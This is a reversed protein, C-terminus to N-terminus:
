PVTVTTQTSAGAGLQDIVAADVTWTGAHPLIHVAGFTKSSFGDGFGINEELIFGNPSFSNATCALVALPSVKPFPVVTLVATPPIDQPEANVAFQTSQEAGRADWAVVTIRPNGKFVKLPTNIFDRDTLYALQDNIYVAMASIPASSNASIVFPNPYNQVAGNSPTTVTIGQASPKATILRESSNFAGLNDWATTRIRYEGINQYTHTANPGTVVTGDGFDIQTGTVVGDPDTSGSLNVSVTMGGSTDVNTVLTPSQDSTRYGMAPSIHNIISPKGVAQVYLVYNGPNLGFTGMNIAHQTVPLDALDMLNQGDTSIYVTYHDVANENGTVNWTLWGGVMAPSVSVCDDVGSEIETGEEYDNWTVIQVAPLQNGASYFQDIQGFTDLWTQGCHQSIVRNTSWIASVDNFGKYTSGFSPQQAKGVAAAYFQQQASLQEDFPNLSAIQIWQYAGNSQPTETFGGPGQFLFIPNGPVSARVQDWDIYWTETGFMFVVPRGDIKSYAPSNMYQNYGQTLDRIAQTTVDCNNQRAANFLAGGDYMLAFEFGSHAEAQARMQQTASNIFPDSMGYWDVIAGQIGRSIMDEVQRKVQAPDASNYGVSIHSQTGFWSQFAAYIKTTSGPYLLNRIPLKSVNYGGINGNPLGAINSSTNAATQAQLTTTPVINTAAFSPIAACLILTIAFRSLM